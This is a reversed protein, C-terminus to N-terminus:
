LNKTQRALWGYLAEIEEAATGSPEYEQATQGLIPADIVAARHGITHPCMEFRDGHEGEVTAAAEEIRAKSPLCANLVVFAPAQTSAKLLDKTMPLTDIDDKTPRCPVLILDELRAAASSTDALKPPTDFIVLDFDSSEAKTLTKKLMPAPTSVVEPPMTEGRTEAWILASGQPDLDILLTKKGALEAAVALSKSLTTKGSGGKQAVVAVKLM